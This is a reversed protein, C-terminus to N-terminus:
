NLVMWKNRAAGAIQRVVRKKDNLVALLGQTIQTKYPHIRPYPLQDALTSLGEVATGRQRATFAQQSVKLLVPIIINLYSVFSGADNKLLIELTRLSQTQLPTSQVTSDVVEHSYSVAYVAIDVLEQLSSQVVSAPLGVTLTCIALISSSSTVDHASKNSIFLNANALLPPSLLSWLKQRWFPSCHGKSAPSLVSSEEVLASLRTALADRFSAVGRSSSTNDVLSTTLHSLLIEQWSADATFHATTNRVAPRMYLAKLTWLFIDTVARIDQATAEVLSDGLSCQYTFCSDAVSSAIFQLLSGNPLKNVVIAILQATGYQNAWESTHAAHDHRVAGAAKYHSVTKLAQEVVGLLSESTSHSLATQVEALSLSSSSHTAFLDSAKDLYTLASVTVATRLAASQPSSDNSETLSKLLSEVFKTQDVLTLALVVRRVLSFLSALLAAVPAGDGALFQAKLQNNVVAGEASKANQKHNHHDHSSTCPQGNHSHSHPACSNSNAPSVATPEAQLLDRVTNVVQTLVRLESDTTAEGDPTAHLQDIRTVSADVSATLNPFFTAVLADGKSGRAISSLIAYVNATLAGSSQHLSQLLASVCHERLVADYERRGALSVIISLFCLRIPDESPSRTRGAAVAAMLEVDRSDYAKHLWIYSLGHLAIGSLTRIHAALKDQDLASSPTRMLLERMAKGAEVIAAMKDLTPQFAILRPFNTSVPASDVQMADEAVLASDASSSIPDSVDETQLFSALVEFLVVSHPRLPDLSLMQSFDISPVESGSKDDIDQTCAILQGLMEVATPLITEQAAMSPLVSFGKKEALLSRALSTSLVNRTDAAKNCILPVLLTMVAGCCLCGARAISFAANVAMKAQIGNLNGHIEGAVRKLMPECFARWDALYGGSLDKGISSTIQTITWLAKFIYEPTTDDTAMDYLYEAAASLLSDHVPGTSAYTQAPRLVTHSYKDVIVVLSNMAHIRATSLDNVLQGILFQTSHPVINVHVCLCSDLAAILAEPTIGFPDDPPPMFTIPFYCSASDFVREALAGSVNDGFLVVVQGVVQLAQLLCRPDKEQEM